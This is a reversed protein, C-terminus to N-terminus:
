PLSSVVTEGSSRASRREKFLRLGQPTVRYCGAVNGPDLRSLNGTNQELWGFAILQGHLRSLNRDTCEAHQMKRDQWVQRDSLGLQAYHFLLGELDPDSDLFEIEDFM